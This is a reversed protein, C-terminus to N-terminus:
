SPKLIYFCHWHHNELRYQELIKYGAKKIARTVQNGQSGKYGIEWYHQGDFIKPGIFPREINLVLKTWEKIKPIRFSVGLHWRIDPLSLVVRGSTVRRIECLAPLFDAFKLHELVQCCLTLDFQNECFPMEMVSGLFDPALEPDIDITTLKVDPFNSLFSKILGAGVGIELISGPQFRAIERLQQTISAIRLPFLGEKFYHEREVQRKRLNNM